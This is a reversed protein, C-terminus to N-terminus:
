ADGADNLRQSLRRIKLLFADVRIPRHVFVVRAVIRVERDTAKKDRPIIIPDQWKADDSLPWLETHGERRHVIKATAEVAGDSSIQEVIVLEGSSARHDQLDVCRLYDGDRAIQNISTGRVVLDYQASAPYQGDAPVSTTPLEPEDSQGVFRFLGAAVEGKVPVTVANPQAAQSDGFALWAPSTDLIAALKSISRLTPSPQSPRGWDAVAGSALGAKLCAERVSMGRAAALAEAREIIEANSPPSGRDPRSRAVMFVGGYPCAYKGQPINGAITTVLSRSM